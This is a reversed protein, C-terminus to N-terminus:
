PKAEATQPETVVAVDDIRWGAAGSEVFTVRVSAAIYRQNPPAGREGQLFVLMTARDATASLVSSNTVRYENRVPGAKRAAQQVASLQERYKDSALSQAHDFDAQITDPHYSLLQVVMRPGQAAIQARADNISQDHQRVVAYSIAAGGACLTATVLLVAAALRRLNRDPLRTQLLRAETRLLLDAFTCRHANCLPWLWGALVPATDLVHAVDRLLLRWPGVPRTSRHVVAIGFVARGLSQGRIVPLLLRNFATWLMAVTGISVCVWWWRGRLPVSLAALMTTALVAAGPLIDIALAGARLLWRAPEAPAAEDVTGSIQPDADTVTM